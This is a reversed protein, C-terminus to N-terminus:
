PDTKAASGYSRAPDTARLAACVEDDAIFPLETSTAASFTNFTAAADAVPISRGALLTAFVGELPVLRSGSGRPQRDDFM